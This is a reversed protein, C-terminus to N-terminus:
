EGLMASYESGITSSVIGRQGYERERYNEKNKSYVIVLIALAIVIIASAILWEWMRADKAEPSLELNANNSM